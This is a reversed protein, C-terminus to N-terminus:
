GSWLLHTRLQADKAKLRWRSVRVKIDLSLKVSVSLNKGGEDVVRDALTNLVEYEEDTLKLVLSHEFYPDLGSIPKGQWDTSKVTRRIVAGAYIERLDQMWDSVALNFESDDADRTKKGQVVTRALKVDGEGDKRRQRERRVARDLAKKHERMTSLTDPDEFSPIGLM